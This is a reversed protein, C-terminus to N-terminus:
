HFKKFAFFTFNERHKVSYWEMFICVSSILFWVMLVYQSTSTYSLVNM